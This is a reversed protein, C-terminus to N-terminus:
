LLLGYRVLFLYYNHIFSVFFRTPKFISTFEVFLTFTSKLQVCIISLQSSLSSGFM